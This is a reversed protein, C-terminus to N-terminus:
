PLESGKFCQLYNNRKYDAFHLIKESNKVTYMTYYLSRYNVGRYESISKKEQQRKTWRIPDERYNGVAVRM